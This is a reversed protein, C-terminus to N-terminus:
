YNTKVDTLRDKANQPMAQAELLNSINVIEAKYSDNNLKLTKKAQELTEEAVTIEKEVEQM